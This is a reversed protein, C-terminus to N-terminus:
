NGFKDMVLITVDDEFDNSGTYNYLSKRTNEIFDEAGNAANEIMLQKLRETGFQEEKQNVAENLGDTYIFLRTQGNLKIERQGFSAGLDIIGLLFGETDLEHITGTQYDYLLPRPHGANAYRLTNEKRDLIALFASFFEGTQLVSCFDKNMKQLVVAPNLIQDSYKHLTMKFMASLMAAAVGHGSADAVVLAAYRDDIDLIDYFDGGLQSSPLYLSGFHVDSFQPLSEPLLSKQFEGAKQLDTILKKHQEEIIKKQREVKNLAKRLANAQNELQINQKKIREMLEIRDKAIGLYEAIAELMFRDAEDLSINEINEINLVGFVREKFRIPFAFESRTEDTAGQKFYPLTTVDEAIVAQGTQFVHGIVGEDPEFRTGLPFRSKVKEINYGSMAELVLKDSEPNYFFITLQTSEFFSQVIKESVFRAIEILDNCSAIKKGIENITQLQLYRKELLQDNRVQETVDYFNEIVGLAKQRADQLVKANRNVYRLDGSKTMIQSVVDAVTTQVGDLAPNILMDVMVLVEKLTKGKVERANYGTIKEAARNWELIKGALDYTVIAQPSSELINQLYEKTDRVNQLLKELESTYAKVQEQLELRRLSKEVTLKLTELEVPKIIFDSARHRLAEIISSTDKFATLIIIETEEDQQRIKKLVELGSMGPMKLDVILIRPRKQEFIRLGDEGSNAVYVRFGNQTLYEKITEAIDANDDIVLIHKELLSKTETGTEKELVQLWGM